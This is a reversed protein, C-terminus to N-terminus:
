LGVLTSLGHAPANKDDYAVVLAANAYAKTLSPSDGIGDALSFFGRSLCHELNWHNPFRDRVSDFRSV